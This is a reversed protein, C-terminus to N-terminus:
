WESIEKLITWIGKALLLLAVLKVFPDIGIFSLILGGALIDLLGMVLFILSM